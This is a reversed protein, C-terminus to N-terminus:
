SVNKRTSQRLSRGTQRRPGTTRRVIRLQVAALLAEVSPLELQRQGKLFEHVASQSLTPCYSRALQWVRYATLHLRKMQRAVAERIISKRPPLGGSADRRLRHFRRREPIESGDIPGNMAAHLRDLDATSAPPVQRASKRVLKAAASKKSMDNGRPWPQQGRVSSEPSGPARRRVTRGAIVLVISRDQPHSATTIYRDEVTSHKDDYEEVHFADGDEDALVLAADDFSVRHKRINKAAKTENWEFNEHLM